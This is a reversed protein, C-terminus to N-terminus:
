CELASCVSIHKESLSLEPQAHQIACWKGVPVCAGEM